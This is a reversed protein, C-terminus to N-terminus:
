PDARTGTGPKKRRGKRDSRSGARGATQADALTFHFVSGGGANSEVWIRGGHREVIKKCIALGMGTGEYKERSHLRQFIVFVREFFKTDIGIGNDSVSFTWRGGERQAGVHIRPPGAGRFKIANAILNQFVQALQTEDALVVPMSEEHTISAGSEAVALQLSECVTRLVKASDTPVLPNGHTGVRSYELLDEILRRMRAAGDVAFGIFRHAEADLKGAYRRELLQLFSSVMRLPEKLDHSAIYAFQELDENSRVLEEEIRKRDTIDTAIGCVASVQGAGDRFPFKVSVYTHPGDDHPAIEEFQMPGGAVAVQRDNEQFARAMEPPFIEDDSKGVVEERTIHFLDAWKQNIMLYRGDLGKMFIVAPANDIIAQMREEALRRAAEARKRETLNTGVGLFGVIEGAADRLATVSLRIPFRSGDKRIYTWEHEDPRGLRAKAVFTEFGPAVPNGLEESLERARAAVEERDHIIEPTVKGILEEVAYGLERLAYANMTEIIGDPRTSIMTFNASDLIARQWSTVLRLQDEAKKQDTVDRAVAYILQREADPVARWLLWRHGGDRCRYRNEFWIVSEGGAVKEKEVATVARDDPHVFELYPRALLEEESFGLTRTWARNIRKFYGDFGAICLLDLSDGFFHQLLDDDEKVWSPM